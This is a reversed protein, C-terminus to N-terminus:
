ALRAVSVDTEFAALNLHDNWLKLLAESISVEFKNALRRHRYRNNM